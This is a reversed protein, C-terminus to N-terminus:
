TNASGASPQGDPFWHFEPRFSPPLPVCQEQEFMLGYLADAVRHAIGFSIKFGGTAIYTRPRGPIRGVVPDRRLCKPRVGAWHEVIEANKLSPCFQEARKLFDLDNMDPLTPDSWQSQSTSGVAVLNGTHPVVYIGDDYIVPLGETDLGSLLAAQGKVGGGLRTGDMKEIMSFTKYGAALVIQGAAIPSEGGALVVQGRNHDMDCVESHELFRCRGDLSATLAAVYKRPSVRAALTDFAFGLPAARPSLWDSVPSVDLVRFRFGTAETQWRSVSEEARQLAHVRKDETYIPMLRGVRGYGTSLGTEAELDAIHSSLSSLASFQFDKKANWRAPIHPMLAGLVGGSAGQGVTAEDILVVRKGGQVCRRAISLGFIGAGVIAIDYLATDKM